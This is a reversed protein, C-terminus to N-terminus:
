GIFDLLYRIRPGGRPKANDAINGDTPVQIMNFDKRSQVWLLKGDLHRVKGVGRETVLQRASSSGTYIYHDVKAGLTFELVARFYIRSSNPLPCSNM